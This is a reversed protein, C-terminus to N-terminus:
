VGLKKLSALHDKSKKRYYLVVLWAPGIAICTFFAMQMSIFRLNSIMEAHWFKRSFLVQGQFVCMMILASGL